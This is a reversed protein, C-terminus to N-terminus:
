NKPPPLTMPTPTLLLRDPIKSFFPSLSSLSFSKRCSTEASPPPPLSSSWLDRHSFVRLAPTRLHLCILYSMGVIGTSPLSLCSVQGSIRAPLTESCSVAKSHLAIGPGKGLILRGVLWEHDGSWGKNNKLKKFYKKFGHKVTYSQNAQFEEYLGPQAPVCPSGNLALRM